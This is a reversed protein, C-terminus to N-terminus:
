LYSPFYTRNPGIIKRHWRHEPPDKAILLAGTQESPMREITPGASSSFRDFDNHAAVVDAHRSLLYFDLKGNYYVPAEERLRAFTPYPDCFTEYDYPDYELPAPATTTETMSVISRKEM